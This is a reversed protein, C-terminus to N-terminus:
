SKCWVHQILKVMNAAPGGQRKYNNCPLQLLTFGRVLISEPIWHCLVKFVNRQGNVQCQMIFLTRYAMMTPPPPVGFHSGACGSAGNKLECVAEVKRWSIWSFFVLASPQNLGVWGEFL